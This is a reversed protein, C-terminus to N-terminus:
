ILYSNTMLLSEKYVGKTIHLVQCIYQIHLSLSFGRLYSDMHHHESHHYEMIVSYRM